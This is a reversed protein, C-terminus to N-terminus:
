GRAVDLSLKQCTQAARGSSLKVVAQAGIENWTGPNILAALGGRAIQSSAHMEFRTSSFPSGAGFPLVVSM